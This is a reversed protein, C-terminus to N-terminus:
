KLPTLLPSLFHSLLCVSGKMRNPRAMYITLRDLRAESGIEAMLYHIFSDIGLGPTNWNLDTLVHEETQTCSFKMAPNVPDPVQGNISGKDLWRSFFDSILQAEFVHEALLVWDTFSLITM